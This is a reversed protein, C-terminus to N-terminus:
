NHSIKKLKFNKCRNSLRDKRKDNIKNVYAKILVNFYKDLLLKCCTDCVIGLNEKINCTLILKAKVQSAGEKLYIDINEQFASNILDSARKATDNPFLLMSKDTFKKIEIQSNEISFDNSLSCLADRCQEHLLKSCVWGLVYCESNKQALNLGEGQICTLQTEDNKINIHPSQKLIDQKQLLFTSADIESNSDASPQLLQNTMVARLNCRFKVSDPTVNNGGKARIISFLNEICDQSLRRTFLFQFNHNDKLDEWLFKLANINSIWGKICTPNLLRKNLVKIESLYQKLVELRVIHCNSKVSLPRRYQKDKYKASNFIDFLCDIKDIFDATHVANASINNLTVNCLIGSSVSHSFVHAALSVRMPSFPPLDISKKTLKPAMRPIQESDLSYFKVVHSWSYIKDDHQFDYKKFNNRTCKLLHPADYFFYIREGNITIFPNDVSVSLLKRLKVNNTGLDCVVSKVVFGTEQLKKIIECFINKFSDAPMAEKTLFYGIVQKFDLYLGKIMIVMAQNCLRCLNPRDDGFDEFGEFMDQRADYNLHEQLSIEDFVLSIVKEEPKLKQAKIKLLQLVSSNIGCTVHLSSLWLRLSSISPLCFLTQLLSYSKTSSYYLALAFEKDNNNYRRGKKHGSALRYQSQIFQDCVTSVGSTAKPTLNQHRRVKKRLLQNQQKLKCIVSSKNKLKQRYKQLALKLKSNEKRLSEVVDVVTSDSALNDVDEVSDTKQNKARSCEGDTINRNKRKLVNRM